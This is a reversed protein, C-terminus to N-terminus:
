GGVHVVAAVVSSQTPSSYPNDSANTYEARWVRRHGPITTEQHSKRRHFTTTFIKPFRQARAMITSTAIPPIPHTAGCASASETDIFSTTPV